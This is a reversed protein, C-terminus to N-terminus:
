LLTFFFFHEMLCELLQMINMLPSTSWPAWVICQKSPLTIGPANFIDNIWVFNSELLSISGGRSNGGMYTGDKQKGIKRCCVKRPVSHEKKKEQIFDCLEKDSLNCHLCGVKYSWNVQRMFDAKKNM